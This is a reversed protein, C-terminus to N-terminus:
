NNSENLSTTEEKLKLELIKGHTKLFEKLKDPAETTTTCLVDNGSETIGAEYEALRNAYYAVDKNIAKKYTWGGNDNQWFTGYMVEIYPRKRNDEYYFMNNLIYHNQGNFSCVEYNCAGIYKVAVNRLSSYCSNVYTLGDEGCITNEDLPCNTESDVATDTTELSKNCGFTLLLIILLMVYLTQRYRM